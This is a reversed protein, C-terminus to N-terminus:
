RAATGIDAFPRAFGVVMGTAVEDAQGPEFRELAGRMEVTDRKVFEAVPASM